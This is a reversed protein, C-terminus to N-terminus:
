KEMWKLRQQWHIPDKEDNEDFIQGVFDWDGLKCGDPFPVSGAFKDRTCSDHVLGNKQVKPWVFNWLFEQDAGYAAQRTYPTRYRHFKKAAKTIGELVGGVAGWMGGLMPVAHYPHDRMAHFQKASAIWANVARVERACPRSDVDRIIFREVEPEDAIFFRVFMGNPEKKSSYLRVQGGAQEIQEITEQPVTLQDVWFVTQWGPYFEKSMEANRVAGRLYMPHDGFLVYSIAKM